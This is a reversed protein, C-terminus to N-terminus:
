LLRYLRFMVKYESEISDTRLKNLRESSGNSFELFYQILERAESARIAHKDMTELQEGIRVATNGVEALRHNLSM